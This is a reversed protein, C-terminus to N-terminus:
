AITIMNQIKHHSVLMMKAYMNEFSINLIKACAKVQIDLPVNYFLNIGCYPKDYLYKDPRPDEKILEEIDEDSPLEDENELYFAKFNRAYPNRDEDKPSGPIKERGDAYYEGVTRPYYLCEKTSEHDIEYCILGRYDEENEALYNDKSLLIISFYDNDNIMIGGIAAFNNKIYKSLVDIYDCDHSFVRYPPLVIVSGSSNDRSNHICSYNFFIDNKTREYDLEKFNFCSSKNEYVMVNGEIEDDGNLYYDFVDGLCSEFIFYEPPINKDAQHFEKLLEFIKKKTQRSLIILNDEDFREKLDDNSAM